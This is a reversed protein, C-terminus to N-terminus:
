ISWEYSYGLGKIIIQIYGCGEGKHSIVKPKACTFIHLPYRVNKSWHHVLRQGVLELSISSVAPTFGLEFCLIIRKKKKKKDKFASDRYEWSWTGITDLCVQPIPIVVVTLSIRINDNGKKKKKYFNYSKMDFFFCCKVMIKAMKLKTQKWSHSFYPNTSLKSLVPKCIWRHLDGTRGSARALWFESM